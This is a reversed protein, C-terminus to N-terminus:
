IESWSAVFVLLGNLSGNGGSGGLLPFTHRMEFAFVRISVLFSVIEEFFSKAIM